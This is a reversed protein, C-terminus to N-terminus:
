REDNPSLRGGDGVVVFGAWYFPKMRYRPDKIMELAAQRWAEAKSANKANRHFTVMLKTTSESPVEWQSAVTTPVGAVFLAWTMGIMGEGAGVRGRATECASLVAIEAKLDMEMIEWAELLGDEKSTNSTALVIYSYLPNHDDLVGHTAFHLVRYKGMEAKVVEERADQGIRVVSARLEYAETGITQVEKETEPLPLFSTSRLAQARALAEGGFMPNGIAYFQSKVQDGSSTSAGNQQDKSTPLTQLSESRKRMERLVHLSPAYYIAYLELLYKNTSTQLAQFPLEWLSGDPVICVTTKGQLQEEAPKVLLKYLDSGAQRFGPHNDALLKRYNEVLNSLERRGINIPYVKLQVREKRAPDKTLVFLFIQEDLVVYELVASQADPLSVTADQLAFPPLLGRDIRLGPHSAYLATQFTEYTNRAKQLRSEMEGIREDDPQQRMRETRIQINLSVMEGYLRQEESQEQQSLSKHINVRGNRLVDLLVRGKAREAYKLAEEANKKRVLLSVMEHYPSTKDEFFLQQEKGGGAIQARMREAEEIAQVFSKAALEDAGQAHYAKGKLTLTLHTLIPLRLKTAIEAASNALESSKGYERQAYFVQGKRWLLEAMRIKDATTQALSLANDFWELAASYNAQEYCVVGLGEQAAIVIDSAGIEEAGKLGKQFAEVAGKYKRLRQDIVGINILTRVVERQNKVETFLRLSQELLESAKAYDRQEIYLVGINALVEALRGKDSLTKVLELAQSLYNLAQMHDGMVQYAIGIHTLTNAIHAQYLLGGRNLEKWLSLSKQFNTLASQYDGKWLSVEGLNSWATAIGYKDPLGGVAHVNNKVSDVLALSAESYEQAKQYDKIFAHLSGLESLVCILDGPSKAEEFTKKSLFYADIAAKYDGQTFHAYGIRYYTHGLPMKDELQEAAGKAIELVFLARSLNGSNSVKISEGILRLWLQPTIFNKHEKLIGLAADQGETKLISSFLDDTNLIQSNNSSQSFCNFPFLLIFLLVIDKFFSRRRDRRLPPPFASAGRMRLSKGRAQILSMARLEKVGTEM